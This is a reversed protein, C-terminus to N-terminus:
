GCLRLERGTLRLEDGETMKAFLCLVKKMGRTTLEWRADMVDFCKPYGPVTEVRDQDIYM